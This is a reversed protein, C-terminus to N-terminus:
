KEVDSFFIHNDDFLARYTKNILLHGCFPCYKIPIYSESIALTTFEELDAKCYECGFDM